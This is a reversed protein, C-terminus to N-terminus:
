KRGDKAKHIIQWAVSGDERNIPVTEPLCECGEPMHPMTDGQPVTHVELNHFLNVWQTRPRNLYEIRKGIFISVAFVVVIGVIIWNM